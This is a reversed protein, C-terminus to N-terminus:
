QTFSLSFVRSFLFTKLRSKFVAVCDSSLVTKLLSNWVASASCRFTCKAFATTEDHFTSVADYHGIAFQLWTRSGPNPSLTVIADIHQPSQIDASGSQVRDEASRAATYRGSYSAPMPDDQLGSFSGLQTTRCESCSRSATAQFVM